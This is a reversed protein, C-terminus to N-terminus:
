DSRFVDCYKQKPAGGNGKEPEQAQQKVEAASTMWLDSYGIMGWLGDLGEIFEWYGLWEFSPWAGLWVSVTASSM